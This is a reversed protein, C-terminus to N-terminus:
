TALEFSKWPVMADLGVVEAAVKVEDGFGVIWSEVEDLLQSGTM